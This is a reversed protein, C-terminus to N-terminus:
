EWYIPFYFINWVVLSIWKKIFGVKSQGTMMKFESRLIRWKENTFFWTFFGWIEMAKRPSILYFWWQGVYGLKAQLWQSNSGRFGWAMWNSRPAPIFKVAKKEEVLRPNERGLGRPGRWLISPFHHNIMTSLPELDNMRIKYVYSEVMPFPRSIMSSSPPFTWCTM